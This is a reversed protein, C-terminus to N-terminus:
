AEEDDESEEEEGMGGCEHLALAAAVFGAEDDDKLAAFMEKAYERRPDGTGGKGLGMKPESKPPSGFHIM